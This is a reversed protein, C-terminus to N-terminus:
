KCLDPYDTIITDFDAREKLSEMYAIREERGKTIKKYTNVILLEPKLSIDEIETDGNWLGICKKIRLLKSYYEKLEEAHQSIFNSYGTM